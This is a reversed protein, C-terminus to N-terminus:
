ASEWKALDRLADALDPFRFPFNRLLLRTPASGRGGLILQPDTGMLHQAVLKVAFAPASPAWPRGLSRRLARMFDANTAPEPACVNYAGTMSASEIAHALAEVADDVHVWSFGQQGSGATGGLFWRALRALPPYAGGKRSLVIGLRLVVRRTAELELAGFAEEWQRCVTALFDQGPPSDEDCLGLGNTGYYGTASCQVWVAPPQKCKAVAKGLARVANLRSALIEHSNELTFVCNLNRGAFNVVAAAGELEVAWAGGTEGNWLVERVSTDERPSRSLVVVEAGSQSLKQALARGLLGSGGALVVKKTM